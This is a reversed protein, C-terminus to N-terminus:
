GETVRYRLMTLSKPDDKFPDTKTRRVLKAQTLNEFVEKVASLIIDRVESEIKKEAAAWKEAPAKGVYEVVFPVIFELDESETLVPKRLGEVTVYAQGDETPYRKSVIPTLYNGLIALFQADGDDEAVEEQEVEKSPLPQIRVESLGYLAELEELARM